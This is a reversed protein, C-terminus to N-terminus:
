VRDNYYCYKDNYYCYKNNNNYCYKNNNYCYNNNYNNTGRRSVDCILTWAQRVEPDGNQLQVVHSYARKKFEEDEDFRM